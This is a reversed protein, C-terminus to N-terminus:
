HCPSRGRIHEVLAAEVARNWREQPVRTAYDFFLALALLLASMLLWPRVPVFLWGLLLVLIFGWGFFLMSLRRVPRWMMMSEYIRVDIGFRGALHRATVARSVDVVPLHEDTQAVITLMEEESTAEDLSSSLDDLAEISWGPRTTVLSIELAERFSLDPSTGLITRASTAM